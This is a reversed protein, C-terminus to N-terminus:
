MGYVKRGGGDGEGHYYVVPIIGPLLNREKAYRDWIKIMYKLLQFVTFRDSKSKHEFLIYIYTPYKKFYIM